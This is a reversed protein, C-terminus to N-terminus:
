NSISNWLTQIHKEKDALSINAPFDVEVEKDGNKLKTKIPTTKIEKILTLISPLLTPLVAIAITGLTVAESAMAGKPLDTSENPLITVEAYQMLQEKLSGSISLALEPDATPFSFHIQIKKEM